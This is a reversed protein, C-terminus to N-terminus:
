IGKSISSVNYRTMISVRDSFEQCPNNNPLSVIYPSFIVGPEKPREETTRLKNFNM